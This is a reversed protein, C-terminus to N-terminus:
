SKFQIPSQKDADGMDESRDHQEAKFVLIQGNTAVSVGITFGKVGVVVVKNVRTIWIVSGDTVSEGAQTPWTPETSGGTADNTCEYIFGTENGKTPKIITGLVTTSRQSADSARQQTWPDPHAAFAEGQGSPAPLAVKNAAEDYAIIGTGATTPISTASGQTVLIGYQGTGADTDGLAKFWEYLLETSNLDTWLRVYDPVFGCEVNIAADSAILAGSVIKSM